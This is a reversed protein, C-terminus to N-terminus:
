TLSEGHKHEHPARALRPLAAYPCSTFDRSATPMVTESMSSDTSNQEFTRLKSFILSTSTCPSSYSFSCPRKPERHTARMSSPLSVTSSM